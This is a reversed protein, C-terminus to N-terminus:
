LTWSPMDVLSDIVEAIRPLFRGKYEVCEALVLPVLQNERSSLNREMPQRDGNKTFQLYAEPDFPPLPTSLAQEAEAISGKLEAAKDAWAARDSCPVGFGSPQAALMGRIEHIRAASLEAYSPQACAPVSWAAAILLYAFAAFLVSPHSHRDFNKPNKM